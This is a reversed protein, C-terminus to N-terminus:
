YSSIVVPGAWRNACSPNDEWSGYVLLNPHMEKLM